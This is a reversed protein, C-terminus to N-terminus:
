LEPRISPHKCPPHLYADGLAETKSMRDEHGLWRDFISSGVGDGKLSLIVVRSNQLALVM